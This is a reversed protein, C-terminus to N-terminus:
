TKIAVLLMVINRAKQPFSPKGQIQLILHCESNHTSVQHKSSSCRPFIGLRDLLKTQIISEHFGSGLVENYVSQLEIRLDNDVKLVFPFNKMFFKWFPMFSTVNYAPVDKEKLVKKYIFIFTKTFLIHDNFSNHSCNQYCLLIDM